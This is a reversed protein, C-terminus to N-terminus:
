LDAIQPAQGILLLEICIPYAKGNLKHARVFNTNSRTIRIEEGAVGRM